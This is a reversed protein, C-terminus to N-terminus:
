THVDDVMQTWDPKQSADTAESSNQKHLVRLRRRLHWQVLDFVLNLFGVFHQAVKPILRIYELGQEM